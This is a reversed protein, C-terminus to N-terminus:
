YELHFQDPLRGFVEAPAFADMTDFDDFLFINVKMFTEKRIPNKDQM